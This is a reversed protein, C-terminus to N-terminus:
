PNPGSGPLKEDGGGPPPTTPDCKSYGIAAFCFGALSCKGIMIPGTPCASSYNSGSFAIIMACVAIFNFVKKM